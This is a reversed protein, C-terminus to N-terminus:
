LNTTPERKDLSTINLIHKLIFGIFFLLVFFGDRDGLEVGCGFDFLFVIYDIRPYENDGLFVINGPGEITTFSIPAFLM